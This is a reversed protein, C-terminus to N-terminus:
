KNSWIKRNLLCEDMKAKTQTKLSQLDTNDTIEISDLWEYYVKGPRLAFGDAPCRNKANHIVLIALPQKSEIALKFAGDFFSSTPTNGKNRTGEPYIFISSGENLAAKMKQMSRQRAKPSGREVTLYINRILWGLVPIRGLEAKSLFRFPAPSAIACLPIDLASQHNSILIYTQKKKPKESGINIARLACFFFIFRAWTRSAFHAKQIAKSGYILITIAYIPLMIFMGVIFILIGWAAWISQLLKM